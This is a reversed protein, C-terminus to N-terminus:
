LIYDTKFMEDVLDQCYKKHGVVCREAMLTKELKPYQMIIKSYIEKAKPAYAASCDIVRIIPAKKKILIDFPYRAYSDFAIVIDYKKKMAMKAARYGVYKAIMRKCRVYIKKSKDIRAILLLILGLMEGFLQVDEDNLQKGNRAALRKQEGKPLFCSLKRIISKRSDYVTTVLTVDHNNNKIATALKVSHQTGPHIVMVKM